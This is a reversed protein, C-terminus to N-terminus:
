KNLKIGKFDKHTEFVWREKADLTGYWKILSQITGNKRKMIKDLEEKMRKVDWETHNEFWEQLKSNEHLKGEKFLIFTANCLLETQRNLKHAMESATVRTEELQMELNSEVDTKNSNIEKKLSDVEKQLNKTDSMLRQTRHDSLYNLAESDSCPM